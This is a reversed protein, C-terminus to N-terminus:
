LRRSVVGMTTSHGLAVRGFAMYRGSNGPSGRLPSPTDLHHRRAYKSAGPAAAKFGFALPTTADPAPGRKKASRGTLIYEGPRTTSYYGARGCKYCCVQSPPLAHRQWKAKQAAQPFINDRKNPEDAANYASRTWVGPHDKVAQITHLQTHLRRGFQLHEELFGDPRVGFVWAVFNGWAESYTPGPTTPVSLVYQFVLILNEPARNEIYKM